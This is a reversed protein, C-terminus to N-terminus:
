DKGTSPDKRILQSKADPLWLIPTDADTKGTLQQTWSKTVGHVAYALGGQADGVKSTQEFEYGNLQHHQGVMEEETM